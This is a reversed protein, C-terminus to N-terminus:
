VDFIIIQIRKQGKAHTKSSVGLDYLYRYSSRPKLIASCAQKVVFAGTSKVWKFNSNIYYSYTGQHVHTTIYYHAFLLYFRLRMKNCFAVSLTM